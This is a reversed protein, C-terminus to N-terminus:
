ITTMPTMFPKGLFAYSNFNGHLLIIYDVHAMGKLDDVVVRLHHQWAYIPFEQWLVGGKQPLSLVVLHIDDADVLM